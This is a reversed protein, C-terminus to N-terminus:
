TKSQSTTAKLRILLPANSTVEVGEIPRRQQRLRSRRRNHRRWFDGTLVSIPSAYRAIGKSPQSVSASNKCAAGTQATRRRHRDLEEIRDVDAIRRRRGRGRRHAEHHLARTAVAHRCRCRRERVHQEIRTRWHCATVRPSDLYARTYLLITANNKENDYSM